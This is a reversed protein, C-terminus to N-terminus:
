VSEYIIDAVADHISIGTWVSDNPSFDITTTGAVPYNFLLSCVFLHTKGTADDYVAACGNVRDFNADGYVAPQPVVGGPIKMQASTVTGASSDYCFNSRLHVNKGTKVIRWKAGLFDGPNPPNTGITIESNTVTGDTIVQSVGGSTIDNWTTGDNSYQLKTGSNLYRFGPDNPGASIAMRLYKDGASEDGIRWTNKITRQSLNQIANQVNSANVWVLTDDFVIQNANLSINAENLTFEVRNTNVAIGIKNNASDLKRLNFTSGTQDRYVSVGTAGVDAILNNKAATEIGNLKTREVSTIIAGSGANTIANLVALNSHTHLGSQNFSSSQLNGNADFSAVINTSGAGIKDAKDKIVASDVLYSTLDNAFIGSATFDAIVSYTKIYENENIDTFLKGITEGAYYLDGTKYNRVIGLDQSVAIRNIARDNIQEKNINTKNRM